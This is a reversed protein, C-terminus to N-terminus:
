AAERIQQWLQALPSTAGLVTAIIETRPNERDDDDVTLFWDRVRADSHIVRAHQLADAVVKWYNDGDGFQGKGRVVRVYLGYRITRRKAATEPDLSEGRAFIAVADKYAKAEPTVFFRQREEGDRDRGKYPKKYHNGSPPVLPM